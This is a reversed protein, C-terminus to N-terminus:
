IVSGSTAVNAITGISPATNNSNFEQQYNM